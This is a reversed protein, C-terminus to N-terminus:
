HCKFFSRKNIAFCFGLSVTKFYTFKDLDELSDNKHIAILFQDWFGRWNTISGDFKSIELKPLKIRVDQIQTTRPTRGQNSIHFSSSSLRTSKKEFM